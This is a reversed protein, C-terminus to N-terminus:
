EDFPAFLLGSLLKPFFYTSKRPMREGARAVAEVQELTPPRVLFAAAARGTRVAQEAETASPTYRVGELPLRDVAVTDLQTEDSEALTAGGPHVLVFAARDRPVGALASLAEGPPLVTLRFDGDLEPVSGATLRHTPFITLGPDTRSVLAALVYGTEDSGDEEHFRLATEYRHHGDAIVFPPRVLELVAPDSLRWLRSRAGDLTAELDPAGVPAIGPPPGDHLLLIPSLKTRTARLLRLRSSKSRGSTREHPLVIGREYPELRVRAVLSRRIADSGDPGTFDEDLLWVAPEEERVLIGTRRWDALLRAAERADNPRVLRVTNYPSAALFREQLAGTVVDHPPSVLTDLPGAAGTDYRLARFPKVLAMAAWALM